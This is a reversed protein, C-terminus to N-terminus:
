EETNIEDECSRAPDANSYAEFAKGVLGILPGPTLGTTRLPVFLAPFRSMFSTTGFPVLRAPFRSM